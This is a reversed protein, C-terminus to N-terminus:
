RKIKSLLVWLKHNIRVNAAGFCRIFNKNNLLNVRPILPKTTERRNVRQNVLKQLGTYRVKPLERVFRFIPVHSTNISGRVVEHQFLSFSVNGLGPGNKANAYYHRKVTFLLHELPSLGLVRERNRCVTPIVESRSLLRVQLVHARHNHM